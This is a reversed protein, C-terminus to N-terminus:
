SNLVSNLTNQLEPTFSSALQMLQEGNSAAISKLFSAANAKAPPKVEENTIGEVLQRIVVPFHPILKETWTQILVFLGNFVADVEALDSKIPLLSLALEILQVVSMDAFAFAFAIVFVFRKRQRFATASWLRCAHAFHLRCCQGACFARRAVLHCSSNCASRDNGRM